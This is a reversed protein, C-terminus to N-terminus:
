QGATIFRRAACIWRPEHSMIHHHVADRGTFMQGSILVVDGVKLSRV